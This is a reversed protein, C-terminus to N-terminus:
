LQTFLENYNQVFLRWCISHINSTSKHSGYSRWISCSIQNLLYM